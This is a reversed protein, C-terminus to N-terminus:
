EGNQHVQVVSAFVKLRPEEGATDVVAALQGDRGYLRYAQGSSLRASLEETIVGHVIKGASLEDLDIRPLIDLGYDVGLMGAAVAEPTTLRDPEVATDIGFPGYATRRLARLHAGVGLSQGLDHALSRIYTGGSCEVELVVTPLEVEVAELRFINVRRPEPLVSGGSRAIAYMPRGQHKLASYIPPVQQIEGRFDALAQIIEAPKLSSADAQSVIKGEADYTDTAIGFLIEARYTKPHRHHFEITRTAAGVAVPLVGTALPDLTGAHGIRCRGIVRRLRAVVQFSTM